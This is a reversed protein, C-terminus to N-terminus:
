ADEGQQRSGELAADVCRGGCYVEPRGTIGHRADVSSMPKHCEACQPGDFVTWPHVAAAADNVVARFRRVAERGYDNEPKGLLLGEEAWSALM